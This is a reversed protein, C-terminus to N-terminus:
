RKNACFVSTLKGKDDFQFEIDKEAYSCHITVTDEDVSFTTNTANALMTILNKRDM